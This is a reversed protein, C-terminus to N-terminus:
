IETRYDRCQRDNRKMSCSVLFRNPPLNAAFPAVFRRPSSDPRSRSGRRSKNRNFFTRFRLKAFSPEKERQRQAKRERSRTGSRGLPRAIPVRDIRLPTRPISVCPISLPYVHCLCTSRCHRFGKYQLWLKCKKTFRETKSNRPYVHAYVPPISLHCSVRAACRYSANKAENELGKRATDYLPYVPENRRWVHQEV